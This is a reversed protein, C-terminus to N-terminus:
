EVVSAVFLALTDERRTLQRPDVPSVRKEKWGLTPNQHHHHRRRIERTKRGKKVQRMVERRGMRRRASRASFNRRL